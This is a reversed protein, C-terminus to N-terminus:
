EGAPPRMKRPIRERPGVATDAELMVRNKPKPSDLLPGREVEVSIPEITGEIMKAPAGAQAELSTKLYEIMAELEQDSLSKIVNSQEVKHERPCLLALIKLYAAPQTRRVREIAKPGGHRFDRLLAAIFEGNLQQRHRSGVPGGAPNIRGARKETWYKWVDSGSGLYEGRWNGRLMPGAPVYIAPIGMSIAGMILGPTTKDCGGLLVAGDLPHSRLLEEAEMALFNRYLMTSPKVFPEALSMAPLEIPFGGAQLVGRKVDEARARLHAHCANIESWTNIIGIVPRGAWDAADYGFQRLRSRHGFSRLDNVGLWRHSRLDEPRKRNM